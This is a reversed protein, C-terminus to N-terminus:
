STDVDGLSHPHMGVLTRAMVKSAVPLPGHPRTPHPRFRDLYSDQSLVIPHLQWMIKIPMWIGLALSTHESWATVESSAPLPGQPRTLHSRSWDTYTPSGLSPVISYVWLLRPPSTDHNM